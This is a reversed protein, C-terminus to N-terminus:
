NFQKVDSMNYSGIGALNLKLEQGNGITVSNVNASLYTQQQVAEGGQMAQVDFSYEGAPLGDPNSSTWNLVKGNVEMQSGNWRFNMEGPPHAGLSVSEVLGGSSNYIKMTVDSSTALLDVSGSVASGPEIRTKDTPVTVSTGVLSSAQLAQNSQFNGAFGDFSTNLRDIGEVSSFQALQAVFEGNEQPSLPDQNKLQAIMLELFAEQGLENSNETKEASTASSSKNIGLGLNDLVASQNANVASM